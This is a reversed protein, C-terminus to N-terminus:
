VYFVTAVTSSGWLEKFLYERSRCVADQFTFGLICALSTRLLMKNACWTKELCCHFKGRRVSRILEKDQEQLFCFKALVRKRILFKEAFQLSTSIHYVIRNGNGLLWMKCCAPLPKDTLNSLCGARRRVAGATDGHRSHQPLGVSRLPWGTQVATQLFPSSTDESTCSYTWVCIKRTNTNSLCFRINLM